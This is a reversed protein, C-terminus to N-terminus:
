ENISYKSVRNIIEKKVRNGMKELMTGIKIPPIHELRPDADHIASTTVPEGKILLVDYIIDEPSQTISKKSVLPEPPLAPKEWAEVILTDSGDWIKKRMDEYKKTDREVSQGLETLAKHYQTWQDANYEEAECGKIQRLRAQLARDKRDMKKRAEQIESDLGPLREQLGKIRKRCEAKDKMAFFGLSGLVSEESQIEARVKAIEAKAQEVAQKQENLDSTYSSQVSKIKDEVRKKRNLKWEADEIKERLEQQFKRIEQIHKDVIRASEPLPTRKGANKSVEATKQEVAKSMPEASAFLKNFHELETDTLNMAGCTIIGQKTVVFYAYIKDGKEETKALFVFIGPRSKLIIRNEDLSAAMRNVDDDSIDMPASLQVKLGNEIGGFIGMEMERGGTTDFLDAITDGKQYTEQRRKAIILGHFPTVTFYNGINIKESQGVEM